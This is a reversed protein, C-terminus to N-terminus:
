YTRVFATLGAQDLASKTNPIETRPLPGVLVRFTKADPGEAVRGPFGKRALVEVFVEAVGREVAAVQLFWQGRAQGPGSSHPEANMLLSPPQPQAAGVLPASPAAQAASVPAIRAAALTSAPREASSDLKFSKSAVSKDVLGAKQRYQESTILRGAIYGACAAWGVLLTAGLSVAVLRRDGLVPPLRNGTQSIMLSSVNAGM